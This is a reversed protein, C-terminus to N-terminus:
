PRILTMQAGAIVFSHKYLAHCSIRSPSRMWSQFGFARQARCSAGASSASSASDRTTLYRGLRAPYFAIPRPFVHDTPHVGALTAPVPITHTSRPPNDSEKDEIQLDPGRAAAPLFRLRTTRRLQPLCSTLPFDVWVHSSETPSPYWHVQLAASKSFRSGPTRTLHRELLVPIGRVLCRRRPNPPIESNTISKHPRAKGYLM